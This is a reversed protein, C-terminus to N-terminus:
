DTLGESCIWSEKSLVSQGEDVVKGSQQCSLDIRGSSEADTRITIM